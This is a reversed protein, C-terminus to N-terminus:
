HWTGKLLATGSFIIGSSGPSNSRSPVSSTPQAVSSPKVELTSRRLVKTIQETGIPHGDCPIAWQIKQIYLLLSDQIKLTYSIAGLDKSYDYGAKQFQQACGQIPLTWTAQTETITAETVQQGFVGNYGTRLKIQSGIQKVELNLIPQGVFPDTEIWVGAFPAGPVQVVPVPRVLNETPVHWAQLESMVASIKIAKAYSAVTCIHIGYLSGQSDLVPGGSYGGTLSPDSSTTFRQF